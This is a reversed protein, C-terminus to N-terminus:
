CGEMEYIYYGKKTVSEEVEQSAEQIHCFSCEKSNLELHAMNKTSLYKKGYSYIQDIDTMIDEVFIDFHIMEGTEKKVYTDYVAIKM